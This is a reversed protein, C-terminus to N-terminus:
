TMELALEMFSLRGATCMLLSCKGLGWLMGLPFGIRLRFIPQTINHVNHTEPFKCLRKPCHDPFSSLMLVPFTDQSYVPASALAGGISHKASLPYQFGRCAEYWIEKLSFIVLLTPPCHSHHNMQGWVAAETHPKVHSQTPHPHLLKSDSWNGTELFSVSINMAGFDQTGWELTCCLEKSQFWYCWYFSLFYTM